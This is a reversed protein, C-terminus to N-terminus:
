MLKSFISAVFVSGVTVTVFGGVLVKPLMEQMLINYEEDNKAIARSAEKTLIYNPPFGCLCNIAIATSMMWTEKFIKGTIIGFIIIGSVGVIMTGFLPIAVQIIKQPTASALGGFVFGMLLVMLLGMTESKSFIKKDLFGLESAIIGLLLCVVYTHIAGGTMRSILEAIWSVIAVKAILVTPTLYKQSFTPFIKIPTNEVKSNLEEPEIIRLSGARFKELIYKSQWRLAYTMIPYGVLGQISFVIAATIALDERGISNAAKVMIDMSALGGALPPAVVLGYEKGFIVGGIFYAFIMVGVLSMVGIIVTKWQSILEKISMLSGMSTVLLTLLLTFLTGSIGSINLLTSKVEKGGVVHIIETPIVTWFGILFLIATVFISPLKGNTKASLLDGFAQLVVIIGFAFMATIQM